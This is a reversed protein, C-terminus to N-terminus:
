KRPQHANGTDDSVRALDVIRVLEWTRGGDSSWSEEFHPSSSAIQSWVYRNLLLKGNLTDQVFFEGRGNRFEGVNPLGVKGDKSSAFYVYWQHSQPNYTYLMLGVPEKASAVASLELIAGDWIKHFIETGDFEIWTDSGALPHARYKTHAKWSAALPDFDHQGDHDASAPPSGLKAVESSTQAFVLTSCPIVVLASFWLAILHKGLTM